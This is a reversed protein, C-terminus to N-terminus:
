DKIETKKRDLRENLTTVQSFVIRVLILSLSEAILFAITWKDIAPKLKFGGFALAYGTIIFGVILFNLIYGFARRKRFVMLTQFICFLSATGILVGLGMSRFLKLLEVAGNGTIISAIVEVAAGILSSYFGNLLYLKFRVM